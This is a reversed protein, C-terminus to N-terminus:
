DDDGEEDWCPSLGTEDEILLELFLADLSLCDLPAEEFAAIDDYHIYEM